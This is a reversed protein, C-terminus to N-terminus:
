QIVVKELYSGKKSNFEISYIGKGLHSLNIQIREQQSFTEISHVRQGLSNYIHISSIEKECNPISVSFVGSNPNPFLFLDSSETTSITNLNFNSDLKAIHNVTQGNIEKLYGTIYLENNFVEIDGVASCENCNWEIETWNEGDWIDLLGKDLDGFPGAHAGGVWLLDKYIALSMVTGPHLGNNLQHWEEGDWAAIGNGPDGNSTSLNGIVYLQNKYVTLDWIDSLPGSIGSGVKIFQRNTEDYKLLDKISNFTNGGLYLEGKYLAIANLYSGELENNDVLSSWSYGDYVAVGPSYIGAISDFVGLAYLKDNIVELKLISGDVIKINSSVWQNNVWLAIKDTGPTNGMEQFTGAVYLTDHYLSYAQTYGNNSTIGGSMQNWNSGDWFAAGRTGLYNISDNESTGIYLRNSKEDSYLLRTNIPGNTIGEEVKVWKLFAQGKCNATLLLICGFIINSIKMFIM